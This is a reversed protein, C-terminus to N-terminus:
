WRFSGNRQLQGSPHDFICVGQDSPFDVTRETTIDLIQFQMGVSRQGQCNLRKVLFRELVSSSCCPKCKSNKEGSRVDLGGPFPRSSTLPVLSFTKTIIQMSSKTVETPGYSHTLIFLKYSSRM